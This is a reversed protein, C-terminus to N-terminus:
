EAPSVELGAPDADGVDGPGAVLLVGVPVLALLPLLAVVATPGDSTLVYAAPVGAALLGALLALVLQRRPPASRRGVAGLWRDDFGRLWDGM